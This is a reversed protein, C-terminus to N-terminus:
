TCVYRSHCLFFSLKPIDLVNIYTRIFIENTAQWNTVLFLYRCTKFLIIARLCAYEHADVNLQKFKLITEQFSHVEQIMGVTQEADLVAHASLLQSLELPLLFQAAGLVFLERWTEELLLLQLFYV